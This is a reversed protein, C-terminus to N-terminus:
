ALTLITLFTVRQGTADTAIRVRQGLRLLRLGSRAFADADFPLAVGDDCLVTGAGTSAEFHSVTAQGSGPGPATALVAATVLGLRDSTLAARLDAATDVDFRWGDAAVAEGAGSWSHTQASDVGFAPRVSRDAPLLLATTGSGADDRVFVPQGTRATASLLDDVDAVALTPLDGVVIGRHREVSESMVRDLAENLSSGPQARVTLKTTTDPRTAAVGARVESAFEEDATLLVVADVYDSAALATATDIAMALALGRRRAPDDGLRSKAEDGGKLPVVVLWGDVGSM